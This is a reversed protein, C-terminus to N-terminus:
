ATSAVSKVGSEPKLSLQEIVQAQPDQISIAFLKGFSADFTVVVFDGTGCRFRKALLKLEQYIIRLHRLGQTHALRLCRGFRLYGGTLM